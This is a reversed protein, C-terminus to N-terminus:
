ICAGGHGTGPEGDDNDRRTRMGRVTRSPTLRLSFGIVALLVGLMGFASGLLLGLLALACGLVAIATAHTVVVGGDWSASASIRKAFRPDEHTLSSEIERLRREEDRNLM